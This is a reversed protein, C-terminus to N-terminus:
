TGVPPLDTFSPDWVAIVEASFFSLLPSSPFNSFYRSVVALDCSSRLDCSALVGEVDLDEVKLDDARPSYTCYILLGVGVEITYRM